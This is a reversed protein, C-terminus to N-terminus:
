QYQKGQLSLGAQESPIGEVLGVHPLPCLLLCVRSGGKWPVGWGSTAQCRDGGCGMWGWVM